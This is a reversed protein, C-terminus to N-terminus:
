VQNLLASRLADFHCDRAVKSMKAGPAIFEFGQFGEAFVALQKADKLM